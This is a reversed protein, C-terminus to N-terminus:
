SIKRVASAMIRYFDPLRDESGSFALRPAHAQESYCFVGISEGRLFLNPIPGRFEDCEYRLDAFELTKSQLFNMGARRLSNRRQEASLSPQPPFTESPGVSMNAFSHQRSLRSRIPGKGGFISIGTPESSYYYELPIVLSYGRYEARTGRLHAWLGMTELGFGKFTIIAVLYLIVLSAVGILLSRKRKTMM